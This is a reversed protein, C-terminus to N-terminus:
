PERLVGYRQVGGGEGLVVWVKAGVRGGLGSPVGALAVDEGEGTTLYYGEGSAHHLVGVTPEEGDVALLDYGAADLERGPGGGERLAGWVRVRAGAARTLEEELEGVITASAEDGRVITRQFPTNGVQRVTGEITDGAAPNPGSEVRAQRTCATALLLVAAVGASATFLLATTKRM